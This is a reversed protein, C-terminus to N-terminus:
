KRPGTLNGALLRYDDLDVDGDCDLDADAGQPCEPAPPNGAGNFCRAFAAADALDVDDDGDLDSPFPLLGAANLVVTGRIRGLDPNEPDFPEDFDLRGSVRVTVDGIEVRGTIADAVAPPDDALNLTDECPLGFQRIIGCILGEALYEITGRKLYPVNMFSFDGEVIPVLEGPGPQAHYLALGRADAFIDGFFGYDLHFALDNDAQVDFDNLAIRRPDALCDFDIVMRGSLTSADSDCENQVCLEVEISSLNPDVTLDIQAPAAALAILAAHLPMTMM